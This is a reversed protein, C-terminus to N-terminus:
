ISVLYKRYPLEGPRHSGAVPDIIRNLPDASLYESRDDDDDDNAPKSESTKLSNEM